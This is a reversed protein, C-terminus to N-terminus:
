ALCCALCCKGHWLATGVGGAFGYQDFAAPSELLDRCSSTNYPFLGCPADAARLPLIGSIPVGATRTSPHAGGQMGSMTLTTGKPLNTYPVLTIVLENLAGQSITAQGIRAIRFGAVVLPDADGGAKDMAVPAIRSNAGESEISVAPSAQGLAPNTVVFAFKYAHLARLRKVVYLVVSENGTANRRWHAVGPEGGPSDSFHASCNAAACGSADEGLDLLKIRAAGYVANSLGSITIAAPGHASPDVHLDVAPVLTVSLTNEGSGVVSSQGIRKTDFYAIQLPKLHRDAPGSANRQRATWAVYAPSDATKGLEVSVTPAEQGPLSNRLEFVFTHNVQRPVDADLAFELRGLERSFNGSSAYLSHIAIAGSPTAAGVLGHVTIVQYPSVLPEEACITLTINNPRGASVSSQFVGVFLLDIIRLVRATFNAPTMLVEAIDVNAKLVQSVSENGTYARSGTNPELMGARYALVDDAHGSLVVTQNNDALITINPPNPQRTLPNRLRAQLVYDQGLNLRSCLRIVLIGPAQRWRALGCFVGQLPEGLALADDDPTQFGQMGMISIYTGEALHASTRLSVTITNVVDTSPDSQRIDLREFGAVLLPHRMTDLKEMLQLASPYDGGISISLVPSDRKKIDNRMRFSLTYNTNALMTKGPQVTLLLSSASANFVVTEGFVEQTCAWMEADTQVPALLPSAALSCATHVPAARRAPPQGQAVRRPRPREVPM